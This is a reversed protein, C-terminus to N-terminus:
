NVSVFTQLLRARRLHQSVSAKVVARVSSARRNVSNNAWILFFSMKGCTGCCVRQSKISDIVVGFYRRWLGAPGQCGLHYRNGPWLLIRGRCYPCKPAVAFPIVLLMAILLIPFNFFLYKGIEPFIPLIIFSLFFLFLSIRAYLLFVLGVNIILTNINFIM